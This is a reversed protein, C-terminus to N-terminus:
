NDNLINKLFNEYNINDAKAEQIVKIIQEKTLLGTKTLILEIAKKNLFGEKNEDKARCMSLFDSELEQRKLKQVENMFCVLSIKNPMEKLWAEMDKPDMKVGLDILVQGFQEKNISERKDDCIAEFAEKMGIVESPRLKSM